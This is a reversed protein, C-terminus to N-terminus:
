SITFSQLNYRTAILVVWIEKLEAASEALIITDDAYLLIFLKLFVVTDDSLTELQTEVM